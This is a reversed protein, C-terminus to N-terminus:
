AEKRPRGRRKAGSESVSLTTQQSAPAAPLASSQDTAGAAETPRDMAVKTEYYVADGREVLFKALLPPVDSPIDKPLRGFQTIVPKRTTVVIKTM